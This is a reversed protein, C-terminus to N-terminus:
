FPLDDDEDSNEDGEGETDGDVILKAVQNEVENLRSELSRIRDKWDGGSSPQPQDAPTDDSRDYGEPEVEFFPFEFREKDNVKTIKFKDGTSPNCAKIKEFLRCGPKGSLNGEECGWIQTQFAGGDKKQHTNPNAPEGYKLTVIIPTNDDFIIKDYEDKNIKNMMM